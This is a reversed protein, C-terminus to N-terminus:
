KARRVTALIDGAIFTVNRKAYEFAFDESAQPALTFTKETGQESVAIWTGAPLAKPMIEKSLSCWIEHGNNRECESCKMVAEKKTIM